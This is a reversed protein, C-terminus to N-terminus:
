SKSSRKLLTRDLLEACERESQELKMLQQKRQEEGTQASELWQQMTAIARHLELNAAHIAVDSLENFTFQVFEGEFPRIGSQAM